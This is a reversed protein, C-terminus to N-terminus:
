EGQALLGAAAAGSVAEAYRQAPMMPPAEQLEWGRSPYFLWRGIRLRDGDLREVRLEDRLDGARGPSAAEAKSGSESATGLADSLSALDREPLLGQEIAQAVLAPLDAVALEPARRELHGGAWEALRVGGPVRELRVEYRGGDEREYPGATAYPGSFQRAPKADARGRRAGGASAPRPRPRREGQRNADLM